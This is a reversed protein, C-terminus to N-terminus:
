KHRGEFGPPPPPMQSLDVPNGADLAELVRDFQQFIICYFQGQNYNIEHEVSSLIFNIRSMFTLIGIITPMKVNTHVIFVVHSGKFASM